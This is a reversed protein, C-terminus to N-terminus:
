GTYLEVLGAKAEKPHRQLKLVAAENFGPAIPLQRPAWSSFRSAIARSRLAAGTRHGGYGRERATTRKMGRTLPKEQGDEALQKM